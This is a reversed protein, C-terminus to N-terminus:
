IAETQETNAAAEEAERQLRQEHKVKAFGRLPQKETAEVPRTALWAEIEDEDWIRCYPTLLQGPPFNHKKKLHKLQPWNKVIGRARLDRFRLKMKTM